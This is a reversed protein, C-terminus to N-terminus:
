SPALSINFTVASVIIIIFTKRASSWNLPNAPDDPGEWDVIVENIDTPSDVLLEKELQCPQSEIDAHSVHHQATSNSESLLAM